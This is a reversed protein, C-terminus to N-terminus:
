RSEPGNGQQLETVQKRLEVIERQIQSMGAGVMFFCVPLWCLFGLFGNTVVWYNPGITFSLWLSMCIMILSLLACFGTAVWARMSPMQRVYVRRTVKM